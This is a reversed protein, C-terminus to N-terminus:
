KKHGMASLEAKVVSWYDYLDTKEFEGIQVRVSLSMSENYDLRLAEIIEDACIIAYQIASRKISTETTSAAWGGADTAEVDEVKDYFCEFLRKAKERATM